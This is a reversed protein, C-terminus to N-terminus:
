PRRGCDLAYPTPGVRPIDTTSSTRSTAPIHPIKCPHNRLTLPCAVLSEWRHPEAAVQRFSKCVAAVRVLDDFCLLDLVIRLVRLLAALAASPRPLPQFAAGSSRLTLRGQALAEMDWSASM